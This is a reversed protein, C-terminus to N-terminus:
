RPTRHIDSSRPILLGDTIRRYQNIIGLFRCLLKIFQQYFLIAITGYPQVKRHPRLFIPMLDRKNICLFVASPM